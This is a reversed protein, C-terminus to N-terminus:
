IKYYSSIDSFTLSYNKAYWHKIAIKVKNLPKIDKSFMSKLYFYYAYRQM